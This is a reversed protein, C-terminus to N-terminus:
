QNFIHHLSIPKLFWCIYTLSKPLKDDDNHGKNHLIITMVYGFFCLEGRGYFSLKSGFAAANRLM